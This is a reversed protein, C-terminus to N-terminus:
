FYVTNKCILRQLIRLEPEKGERWWFAGLTAQNISAKGHIPAVEPNNAHDVILQGAVISAARMATTETLTLERADRIKVAIAECPVLLGHHQAMAPVVNDAFLSMDGIDPFAFRADTSGFRQCVDYALLQAKKFLYVQQGDISAADRLSPFANVLKEVLHAATPKEACIRIVFDSLSAFGGRQLRRGTDQLCGLIIDALPRLASPESMMVATTGSVVPREEGLLPIGFHQSIDGLTLAQLGKADLPTQSIHLSICGFRITDAAGRGTAEHLERRFGSGFQLLDLLSILNLEQAMNDFVLPLKHTWGNVSDVYSDFKVKDFSDAYHKAKEACVNVLNCGLTDM